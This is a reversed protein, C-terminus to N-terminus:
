VAAAAVARGGGAEAVLELVLHRLLHGLLRQAGHDREGAVALGERIVLFAADEVEVVRALFRLLLRPSFLTAGQSKRVGGEDQPADAVQRVRRSPRPHGSYRAIWMM